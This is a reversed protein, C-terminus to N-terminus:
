LSLDGILTFTNSGTCILTAASYQGRLNSGPASTILTVGDSAVTVIGTGLSQINVQQGQTFVGNPVTVTIASSSSVTVLKNLDSGILAYNATKPGNFTINLNTNTWQVGSGTSSLVQGSTGVGGGATVTGTVTPGSLTLATVTSVTTGSPIATSGLTPQTYGTPVNSWQVGSGTSSLFQGNSGVGGGATVTGTLSSGSLTLGAVTFVTTGSPIPTSGLTPQTYGAAINSWQVGSGTSALVQGASGTGGGATLTGILSAGSLTLTAITTVTAGSTIVTSGLTPQSYGPSVSTWQIGTGTSALVQGNTGVSGGATLTGTVVPSAFTKSSLTQATSTTALTSPFTNTGSTLDKNTLAQAGTLTALTSPFTNTGSTLNKNTLTEAGALTVEPTSWKAGLGQTSDATLVQGNTGVPLNDVNANSAAILVDGKATVVSKPIAADATAVGTTFFTADDGTLVHKTTAGATHAVGSVGPTGTGAQGRSITLTDGSRQTVWVIEENITDVDLALAFSDVNGAALSVGGMLASGTGTAVVISTATSNIGSALTTAVSTSSFKRTM